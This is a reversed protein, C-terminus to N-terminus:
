AYIKVTASPGTQLISSAIGATHGSRLTDLLLRIAM